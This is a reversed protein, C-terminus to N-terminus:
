ATAASSKSFPTGRRFDFTGSRKRDREFRQEDEQWGYYDMQFRNSEITYIMFGIESEAWQLTTPCALFHISRTHIDWKVVPKMQRDLERHLHLHQHGFLVMDIGSAFCSKVFAERNQLTSWQDSIKKAFQLRRLVAREAEPEPVADTVFDIPHHHILVIKVARDYDIPMVKGDLGQVSGDRKILESKIELWSCAADDVYGRAILEHPKQGFPPNNVATSDFAFVITGTIANIDSGESQNASIGIVYPYGEQDKLFLKEFRGFNLQLPALLRYRDHNGPIALVSNTVSRLGYLIFHGPSGSFIEDKDFLLAANKMSRRSGDTSLDGTVVTLDFKGSQMTLRHLKASLASVLQFDHARM